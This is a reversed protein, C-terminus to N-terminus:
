SNCRNFIRGTTGDSAVGNAVVVNPPENPLLGEFRWEQIQNNSIIKYQEFTRNCGVPACVRTQVEVINNALNTRLIELREGDGLAGSGVEVRNVPVGRNNFSFAQFNEGKGCEGVRWVGNQLFTQATSPTTKTLAKTKPNPRSSAFSNISYGIVFAMLGLLALGFLSNPKQNIQASHEDNQITM